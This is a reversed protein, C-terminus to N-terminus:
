MFILTIRHIIDYVVSSDQHFKGRGFQPFTPPAQKKAKRGPGKKTITEDYKAKRGM